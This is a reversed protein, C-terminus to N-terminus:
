RPAHAELAALVPTVVPPPAGASTVVLVKPGPSM